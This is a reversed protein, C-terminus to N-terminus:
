YIGSTKCYKKARKFDLDYIDTSSNCFTYAHSGPKLYSAVIASDMGGSLLIGICTYKEYLKNIQKRISNDIDKADSIMILENKSPLKYNNHKLGEFFDVNDKWIYRFAIYSNLCFEKDNM